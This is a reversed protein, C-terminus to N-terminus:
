RRCYNRIMFLKLIARLGQRVAQHDLPPLAGEQYNAVIGLGTEKLGWM